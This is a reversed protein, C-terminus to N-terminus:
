RKNGLFKILDHSRSWAWDLFLKNDRCFLVQHSWQGVMQGLDAIHDVFWAIYQGFYVTKVANLSRGTVTVNTGGSVPGYLPRISDVTDNVCACVGLGM